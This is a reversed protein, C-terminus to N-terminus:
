IPRWLSRDDPLACAGTTTKLGSNKQSMLEAVWPQAGLALAAPKTGRPQLGTRVRERSAQRGLLFWTYGESDRRSMLTRVASALADILGTQIGNYSPVFGEM